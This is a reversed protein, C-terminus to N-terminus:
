DVRRAPVTLTCIDVTEPPKRFWFEGDRVRKSTKLDAFAQSDTRMVEWRPQEEEPLESALTLSIIPTRDGADPIVGSANGPAAHNVAQVHDMGGIVRGFVTLNRDLHRPAQGNIIYFHSSGSDPNNNRAMAMAGICHLLWVTDDDRGAAFGGIHGAEQAFLDANGLPTFEIDEGIEREYERPLEPAGDDGECDPGICIGGQAVFNGIVRYFSAGEDYHGTRALTRMQEATQPAFAPNLEITVTGGPTELLLLNEPAVARWNAADDEPNADQAAAPTALALVAALAAFTTSARM